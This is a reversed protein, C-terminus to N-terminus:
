LRGRSNAARGKGKRGPKLAASGAIRLANEAVAKLDAATTGLRKEPVVQWLREAAAYYEPLISEVLASGERTLVVNYARRDLAVERRALLRREELRDVLGTVNSRHMVLQRGLETQSLGAPHLHLLNLVNFQSPSIKWREFFLRSANWVTDATRLLVLLAQCGPSDPGSHTTM